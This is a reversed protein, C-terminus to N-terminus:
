NRQGPAALQLIWHAFRTAEAPTIPNPPMQATGWKGSSGQLMSQKLKDVADADDHYRSAIARFPPGVKVTDLAHCARCTEESSSPAAHAAPNLLGLVAAWTSFVAFVFAKKSKMKSKMLEDHRRFSRGAPGRLAHRASM